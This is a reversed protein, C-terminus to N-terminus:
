FRLMLGLGIVDLGLDIRTEWNPGIMFNMGVGAALGLGTGGFGGRLLETASELQTESLSGATHVYVYNYILGAYAFLGFNETFRLNHRVTAILPLVSYSDGAADRNDNLLVFDFVKYYYIGGELAWTGQYPAKAEWQMKSITKAFRLGTGVYYATGANQDLSSFFGFGVTFWHTFKDYIPVETVTLSSMDDEEELDPNGPEAKKQGEEEETSELPPPEEPASNVAEPPPPPAAENDASLPAPNEPPPPELAPQTDVPPPAPMPAAAGGEMQNLLADVENANATPPAAPPPDIRQAAAIDFPPTPPPTAPVTPAPPPASPPPAFPAPTMSVQGPPPEIKELEQLDARDQPTPAPPPPVFDSVKEIATLRNGAGIEPQREYRRVIKAAFQDKDAYVRLVQVAAAASANPANVDNTRLQLVKGLVPLSDRPASLLLM